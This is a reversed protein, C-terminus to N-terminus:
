LLERFNLEGLVEFGNGRGKPKIIVGVMYDLNGLSVENPFSHGFIVKNYGQTPIVELISQFDNLISQKEQNSLTPVESLEVIRSLSKEIRIPHSSFALKATDVARCFPSSIIFSEVPLEKDRFVKGILTAQNKGQESLNRQTECRNFDLNPQDVGVTAEAHRFYIVYGGNRLVELTM